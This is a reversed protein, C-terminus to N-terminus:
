VDGLRTFHCFRQLRDSGVAVSTRIGSISKLYRDIILMSSFHKNGKGPRVGLPSFSEVIRVIIYANNNYTTPRMAINLNWGSASRKHSIM